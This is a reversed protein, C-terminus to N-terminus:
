GLKKKLLHDLSFRNGGVVTFYCFILAYLLALEKKGFPDEFHFILGAVLMTILIGLASFRTFLGAMLFLACFFEAFTALSLSLTSGIGLPDPFFGAKESFSSLKSFGHTLMFAGAVLRLGLEAYEQYLPHAREWLSKKIVKWCM